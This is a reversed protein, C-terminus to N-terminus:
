CTTLTNNLDETSKCVYVYQLFCKFELKSPIEVIYFYKAGCMSM